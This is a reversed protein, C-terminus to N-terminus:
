VCPQYHLTIAIRICPKVAGEQRQRVRNPARDHRPQGPPRGRDVLQGRREVDGFLRHGLVNLHELVRSQDGPGAICLAPRHVEVRGRQLPQGCPDVSIPKVGFATVAPQVGQQSVHGVCVSFPIFFHRVCQVEGGGDVGQGHLEGPLEVCRHLCQEPRM